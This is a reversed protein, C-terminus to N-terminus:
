ATSEEPSPTEASSGDGTTSGNGLGGGSGSPNSDHKVTQVRGDPAGNAGTTTHGGTATSSPAAGGGGPTPTPKRISWKSYASVPEGRYAAEARELDHQDIKLHNEVEVLEGRLRTLSRSVHFMKIGERYYASIVTLVVGITAISTLALAEMWPTLGIAVTASASTYALRLWFGIALFTVTLAAAGFLLFTDM